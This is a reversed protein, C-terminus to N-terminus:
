ATEPPDVTPSQVQPGALIERFDAMEVLNPHQAHIAAGLQRARHM